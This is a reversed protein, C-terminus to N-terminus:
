RRHVADPSIIGLCGGEVLLTRATRWVWVRLLKLGMMLFVLVDV